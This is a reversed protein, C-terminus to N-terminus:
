VKRVKICYEDELHRILKYIANKMDSNVRSVAISGCDDMYFFKVDKLSVQVSVCVKTLDDCYKSASYVLLTDKLSRVVNWQSANCFTKKM